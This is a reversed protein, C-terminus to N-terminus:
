QKVRGTNLYERIQARRHTACLEADDLAPELVFGKMWKSKRKPKPKISLPHM